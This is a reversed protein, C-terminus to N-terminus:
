DKKEAALEYLYSGLLKTGNIYNSKDLKENTSHAGDDGRGVPLLLINLGLINAFDLTVPISGGERTYDPEQGYVAVTAKHAARYNYHNPDAVWPEGGHGLSVECRNKSGIKKFEDDLYKLVLETTNKVGLNPTTRISFKGKVSCPIVTKSGPASFAGEIGHLSLSPNRMRAMLTVVTDDTLTQDGGVAGQIDSMQFHIKEFKEQEDQTVPAILEKVGPILIEGSPSVLKSMLLILDTMPEHITGGFVGSHLDRDPGSVKIEYYNVGRLGYTLCPTKTDLWYNDSICMCDLGAFFKNKESEIFKDLNVSGSEEMGEFIMKMNVPMELGLNKHAEVVNLWGLVPGKDDTSGRGYLRGTKPDPTLTFPEYDWGDEKLAPQVDYHGYVLVTKKAPDNGISGIVVPPLDVEKGDLEHKGIGRKEAKVGLDTLQAVLWDAMREVDQVYELNGSVSPIEVAEKLRAIFADEHDDVYKLFKPDAAPM